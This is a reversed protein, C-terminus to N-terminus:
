IDHIKLSKGSEVFPGSFGLTLETADGIEVILLQETCM